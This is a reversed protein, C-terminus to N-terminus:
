EAPYDFHDRFATNDKARDAVVRGLIRHGAEVWDTGPDAQCMQSVIGEMTAKMREPPAGGDNVAFEVFVLDPKGAIVDQGAEDISLRAM